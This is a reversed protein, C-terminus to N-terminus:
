RGWVKVVSRVEKGSVVGGDGFSLGAKEASCSGEWCGKQESAHYDFTELLLRVHKEERRCPLSGFRLEVARGVVWNKVGVFFAKM